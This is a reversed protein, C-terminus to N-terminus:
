QRSVANNQVGSEFSYHRWHSPRYPISVVAEGGRLIKSSDPGWYAYKPLTGSLPMVM